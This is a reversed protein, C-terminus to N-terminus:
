DFSKSLNISNMITNGIKNLGKDAIKKYVKYSAELATITAATSTIAKVVKKGYSTKKTLDSYNKEMQLRKNRERLEDDSMSKVSKKSHAKVYDEHQSESSRSSAKKVGWRMGLIGYHQLYDNNM